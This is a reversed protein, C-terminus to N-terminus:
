GENENVAFQLYALTGLSSRALKFSGRIQRTLLQVLKLGLSDTMHEDPDFQIGVGSDEVSFAYRGELESRLTLKIEGGGDPFGHKLANSILEHLILGCPVALDVNLQVPELETKLRVSSRPNEHSAIIDEALKQAYDAFDIRAFNESCYLKEHVLAMSYVRDKMDRFVQLVEDDKTRNCQLYFLSCIVALNNKVRHHVERLLAEKREESARLRSLVQETLRAQGILALVRPIMYPLAIATVLSAIATFIKVTVSLVYVPVWITLVEMFHTGGCAVIFLGFAVFMWRFPIDRQAKFVLYSLGLSIAFYAVGILADATVNAWILGSNGLYCYSHPLFTTTLLGKSFSTGIACVFVIAFAWGLWKKLHILRTLRGLTTATVSMSFEM